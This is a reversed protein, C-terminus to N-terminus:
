KGRSIINFDGGLVDVSIWDKAEESECWEGLRPLWRQCETEDSPVYINGIGFEGVGDVYCIAWCVRDDWGGQRVIRGWQEDVWIGVMGEIVWQGNRWHGNNINTAIGGDGRTMEQIMM